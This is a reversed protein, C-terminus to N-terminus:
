CVKSGNQTQSPRWQMADAHSTSIPKNLTTQQFIQMIPTIPHLSSPPESNHHLDTSCNHSSPTSSNCPSTNPNSHVKQFFGPSLPWSSLLFHNKQFFFFNPLHCTPSSLLLSTFLITSLLLIPSSPRYFLQALASYRGSRKTSATAGETSLYFRPIPSASPLVSLSNDYNNQHPNVIASTAQATPIYISLYYSALVRM